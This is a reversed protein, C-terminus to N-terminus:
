VTESITVDQYVTFRGIAVTKLKSTANILRQVDYYLAKGAYPLLAARDTTAISIIIAENGAKKAIGGAWSKKQVVASGDAVTRDAKLTFFFEDSSITEGFAVELDWDDGLIYPQGGDSNKVIDVWQLPDDAVATIVFDAL